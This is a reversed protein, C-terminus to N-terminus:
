PRWWGPAGSRPWCGMPLVARQRGPLNRPAWGGRPAERRRRPRTLNNTENAVIRLLWPRFLGGPRFRPCRFRSLYRFAKM